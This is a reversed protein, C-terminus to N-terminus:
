TAAQTMAELAGNIRARTAQPDAILPQLFQMPNESGTPRRDLGHIDAVFTVYGHAALERAIEVARPTVGAWNPAVLLLPRPGRATDDHVLEGQFKQGSVSYAISETKM